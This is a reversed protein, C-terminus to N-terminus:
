APHTNITDWCTVSVVRQSSLGKEDYRVGSSRWLLLDRLGGVGVM